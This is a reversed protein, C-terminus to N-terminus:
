EEIRIEEGFKKGLARLTQEITTAHGMVLRSVFRFIPNYVEGNETIRLDCGDAAPAIEYVWAGGYPLGTNAIRMELRRPPEASVREYVVGDDKGPRWDQPGDIATWIREPPQKFRARRSAVHKVPLMAGSAAVIAILAVLSGLIIWVWKM